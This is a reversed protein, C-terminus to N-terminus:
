VHASPLCTVRWIQVCCLIHNGDAVRPVVVLTWHRFCEFLLQLRSLCCYIVECWTCVDSVEAWQNSGCRNIESIVLMRDVFIQISLGEYLSYSIIIGVHFSRRPAAFNMAWDARAGGATVDDRTLHGAGGLSPATRDYRLDWGERKATHPKILTALTQHVKRSKAYNKNRFTSQSKTLPTPISSLTAVTVNTWQIYHLLRHHLSPNSQTDIYWITIVCSFENNKHIEANWGYRNNSLLLWSM